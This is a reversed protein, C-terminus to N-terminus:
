SVGHVFREVAQGALRELEIGIGREIEPALPV